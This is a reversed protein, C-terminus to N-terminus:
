WPQLTNGLSIVGKSYYTEPEYAYVKVDVEIAENKIKKIPDLRELYYGPQILGSKYLVEGNKDVIECLLNVGSDKPNTLYQLVTGDEQQFLTGAIYFKFAQPAEIGGYSMNEPPAPVGAQAAPDFDPPVFVPKYNRNYVVVGICLLVLVILSIKIIKNQIHRTKPRLAQERVKM